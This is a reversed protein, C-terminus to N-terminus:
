NYLSPCGLQSYVVVHFSRSKESKVHFWNQDNQLALFSGNSRKIVQIKFDLLMKVNWAYFELFWFESREFNNFRRNKVKQFWDFNFERLILTSPFSSFHFIWRCFEWNPQGPRYISWFWVLRLLICVLYLSMHVKECSVSLHLFLQLYNM